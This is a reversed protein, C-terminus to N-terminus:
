EQVRIQEAIVIRYWWDQTNVVTIAGATSMSLVGQAGTQILVTNSDVQSVHWGYMVTAATSTDHSGQYLESATANLGNTSILLRVFLYALGLNLGHLVNGDVNKAAGVGLHRDTWTSNPIWGSRFVRAGWPTSGQTGAM